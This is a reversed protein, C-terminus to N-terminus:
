IFLENATETFPRALERAALDCALSNGSVLAAITAIGLPGLMYSSQLWRPDSPHGDIEALDSRHNFERGCRKQLRRAIHVPVRDLVM